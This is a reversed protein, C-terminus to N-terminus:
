PAHNVKVRYFGQPAVSTPANFNTVQGAGAIPSGSDTWGSANLNTAVQLQYTFGSKAPFQILNGSFTLSPSPLPIFAELVNMAPQDTQNPQGLNEPDLLFMYEPTVSPKGPGGNYWPGAAWWLWGVMVDSNQQIYNLMNTLAQGGNTSILSNPVATEGLIAKKNNAHLWAVLNSLGDVGAMINTVEEHTGSHDFDLYLHVEIMFHNLPDSINKMADANSRGTDVGNEIDHSSSWSWAGSWRNGEVYILNTAGANRIAAIAANAATVWQDTDMSNPENMLDFIVLQNTRYISAVRFWFNSFASFPVQSSGVKNGYYGGYNHVDLVTFVGKMTNTWVFGYIRNSENIDFVGNLSQQLREWLFPFRVTNMGKHQFYDVETEIPTIYDTAYTGPVNAGFEEGSLNVGVFQLQASACFGSVCCFVASLIVTLKLKM